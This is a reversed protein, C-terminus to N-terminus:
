RKPAPREGCPHGLIALHLGLVSTDGYHAEQKYLVMRGIAHLPLESEHLRDRNIWNVKIVEQIEFFTPLILPPGCLKPFIVFMPHHPPCCIMLDPNNIGWVSRVCRQPHGLRPIRNHQQCICRSRPAAWPLLPKIDPPPLRLHALSSLMPHEDNLLWVLMWIPIKNPQPSLFRYGVETIERFHGDLNFLMVHRLEQLTCVRPHQFVVPAQCQFWIGDEQRHTGGNPYLQIFVMEDM